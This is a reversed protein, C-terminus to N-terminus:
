LSQIVQQIGHLSHVIADAGSCPASRHNERVLHIAKWGRKKAGAIDDDPSDGVMVIEESSLELQEEVIQFIRADPKAYHVNYSSVEIEFVRTAELDPMSSHNWPTLNSITALRYGALTTLAERADPFLRARPLSVSLQRWFNNGASIGLERCFDYAAQELSRDQLYFHRVLAERVESPQLGLLRVVRASFAEGQEQLLTGGLDFCVAEIMLYLGDQGAQKRIQEM